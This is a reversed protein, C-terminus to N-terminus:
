VLARSSLGLLTSTALRRWFSLLPVDQHAARDPGEGPQDEVEEHQERGGVGQDGINGEGVLFDDSAMEYGPEQDERAPVPPDEPEHQEQCPQGPLVRARGSDKEGDVDKRSQGQGQVGQERSQPVLDEAEPDAQGEQPRGEPQADQIQPQDQGADGQFQGLLVLGLPQEQGAQQGSAIGPGEEQEKGAVPAGQRSRGPVQPRVQQDEEQRTDHEREESGDPPGGTAGAGPFQGEQHREPDQPQGPKDILQDVCGHSELAELGPDM